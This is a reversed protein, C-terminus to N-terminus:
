VVTKIRILYFRTKVLYIRARKDKSRLARLNNFISSILKALMSHQEKCADVTRNVIFYFERGM